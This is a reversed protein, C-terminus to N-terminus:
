QPKKFNHSLVFNRPHKHFLQFNLKSFKIRKQLRQIYRKDIHIRKTSVASAGAVNERAFEIFSKHCHSSHFRHETSNSVFQFCHLFCWSWDFVSFLISSSPSFYSLNNSQVGASFINIDSLKALFILSALHLHKARSDFLLLSSINPSFVITGHWSFQITSEEFYQLFIRDNNRLFKM